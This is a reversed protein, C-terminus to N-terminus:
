FIMSIFYIILFFFQIFLSLIIILLYTFLDFKLVYNLFYINKFLM